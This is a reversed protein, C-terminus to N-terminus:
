CTPSATVARCCSSSPAKPFTMCRFSDGRRPGRRDHGGHARPLQLARRITGAPILVRQCLNGFSDTYEVVPAHPAFAYEERTIWQAYGSRPRLMMIAPIPATASFSIHCTADLIM